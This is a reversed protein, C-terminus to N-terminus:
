IGLRNQIDQLINGALEIEGRMERLTGAMPVSPFPTSCPPACPEPEPNRIVPELAERLIRALTVVRDIDGRMSNIESEIQGPKREAPLANLGGASLSKDYM